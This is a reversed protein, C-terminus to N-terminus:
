VLNSIGKKSEFVLVYIVSWFTHVNEYSLCQLFQNISIEHQNQQQNNKKLNIQENKSIHIITYIGLAVCPISIRM